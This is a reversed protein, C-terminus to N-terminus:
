PTLFHTVAMRDRLIFMQIQHWFNKLAWVYGHKSAHCLAALQWGDAGPVSTIAELILDFTRDSKYQVAHFLPTGHPTVRNFDAGANLLLRAVDDRNFRAAWHLATSNGTSNNMDVHAELLTKVIAVHGQATALMLGTVENGEHYTTCVDLQSPLPDLIEHFGFCCALFFRCNGRAIAELRNKPSSEQSSSYVDNYFRPLPTMWSLLQTSSVDLFKDFLYKLNGSARRTAVAECYFPWYEAAYKAFNGPPYNTVTDFNFDPQQLFALCSEAAQTHATIHSYDGMKRKELYERVSIHAFQVM